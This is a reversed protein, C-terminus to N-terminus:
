SVSAEHTQCESIFSVPFTLKKLISSKAEIARWFPAVQSADQTSLYREYNVESVIRLFIGTTVPCTFEAGYEAALDRRMQKISVVTGKPIQRVYDEIIKPTAILMLGNEPIDAFAKDIRKIEPEIRTHFKEEWTKKKSSM